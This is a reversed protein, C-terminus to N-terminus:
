HRAKLLDEIKLNFYNALDSIVDRFVNRAIDMAMVGTSSASFLGSLFALVM